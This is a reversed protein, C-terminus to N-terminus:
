RDTSCLRKTHSSPGMSDFTIWQSAEPGDEEFYKENVISRTRKGSSM